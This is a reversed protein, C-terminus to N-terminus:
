RALVSLSHHPMQLWRASVCEKCCYSTVELAARWQRHVILHVGTLQCIWRRWRIENYLKGNTMGRSVTRTYQLLEWQLSTVFLLGYHRKMRAETGTNRESSRRATLRTFESDPVQGKDTIWEESCNYYTMEMQEKQRRELEEASTQMDSAQRVDFNYSRWCVGEVLYKKWVVGM